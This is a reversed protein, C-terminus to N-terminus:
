KDIKYISIGTDRGAVILKDEYFKAQNTFGASTLRNLLQHTTPNSIDFLYVGGSGSSVVARNDKIDISTALGITDIGGVHVPNNIDSIDVVQLGQQRHAVYAYNGHVMVKMAEGGPIPIESVLGGDQRSYIMLGRQEAAIVIHNDLIAFGSAPAPTEIELINGFWLSLPGHYRGLRFGYGASYAGFITFESSVDPNEFFYMDQIDQTAGSIMDMLKLTDMNSMNVIRIVDSGSTENIFMRNQSRVAAIKRILTFDTDSGDLAGLTTFWRMTYDELDVIAFGGQDAAVYLNELDMDLDLPNGVIPIQALLRLIDEEDYATNRNACSMLLPIMVTAVIMLRLLKWLM